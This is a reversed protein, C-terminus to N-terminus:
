CHVTVPKVSPTKWHGHWPDRYLVPPMTTRPGAVCFRRRKLAVIVLSTIEIVAQGDPVGM